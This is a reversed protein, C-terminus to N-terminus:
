SGTELPDALPRYGYGIRYYFTRTSGEGLDVVVPEVESLRDFRVRVGEEDLRERQDVVLIMVRGAQRDPPFWREYMVADYAILHRSATNAVARRVATARPDSRARYFALESALSYRDMGVVLPERATAREVERAVAEIRQGLDRWGVPKFNRPYPIGPLGLTVYHLAFGFLLLTVLITPGWWRRLRRLLGSEACGPGAVMDSAMLPVVSLWLPGAWNLKPVHRLSFVVLVALPVLALVAAFLRCRAAEVLCPAAGATEVSSPEKRLRPILAVVAAVLGVPTLLLLASEALVLLGSQPTEQLRRVSQFLFSAWGHRANWVIVPTFLVAALLAAGYPGPRVLWRRSRRDVLLFVLVAPGLLAITYKSLMGLGLCIGVGWWARAREALLARSLFYVSGAWCAILPSDPTMYLGCLFFVPLVTVLLVSRFAASKGFLRRATLYGFLATVGWCAIAGLRVGLETDGALATGAGILWAVMPPHDLYSLAPHQAYNWYYAEEALLESLGLYFLRLLVGYTVLGLAAVRWRIAPRHRTEPPPFVFFAYGLYNVLAAVGVAAVIAFRSDWGDVRVLRGLLAGRLSLALLAVALFRVYQRWAPEVDSGSGRFAWRADLVYNFLTAALFSSIHAAALGLGRSLLLQFTAIDVVMGLAGVVVFRTSTRTSVAGGALSRLRDLYRWVQGAGLKSRGHLRDSFEIPVEEVAISEGGAVIVELGIKYGSAASSTELLRTRRVAFFGSMPDHVDVLPWALWSAVRSILRRHWPWDPTSGGEVYRSGVAMETEGRLVPRVLDPIREPPHSLDADMVVVVDGRARRAGALVAGALGGEPRRELLHVPHEQTWSRVRDPTGDVSGDDVVIVEIDFPQGRVAAFIRELLPDINGAEELTPIM